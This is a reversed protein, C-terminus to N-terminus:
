NEAANRADDWRDWYRGTNDGIIRYGKGEIWEVKGVRSACPGGVRIAMM